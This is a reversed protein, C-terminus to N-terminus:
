CTSIRCRGRGRKRRFRLCTRCAANASDLVTVGNRGSASAAALRLARPPRRHAWLREVDQLRPACPARGVGGRARGSGARAYLKGPHPVAARLLHRARRPAPREGPQRRDRALDKGRIRHGVRGAGGRRDVARQAACRAAAACRHSPQLFSGPPATPRPSIMSASCSTAPWRRRSPAGKTADDHGYFEGRRIAGARVARAARPLPRPMWWQDTHLGMLTGGPRAINASLTSLLYDPGLVSEVIASTRPHLALDRFVRGKNILMWVRQNVGGAAETFATEPLAGYDRKPPQGPGQDAFAIGARREARAQAVLRERATRLTEADLADALVCYGFRAVDAKAKGVDATPAAVPDGPRWPPHADTM